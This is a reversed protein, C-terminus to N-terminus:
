SLDKQDEARKKNSLEAIGAFNSDLMSRMLHLFETFNVSDEGAHKRVIRIHKKLEQVNNDGLPIVNKLLAKLESFVIRNRFSGPLGSSTAQEMFLGRFEDVEAASFGTTQITDREKKLKDLEIIDHCIRALALFELLKVPGKDALVESLKARNDKMASKDALMPFKETLLRRLDLPRIANGRAYAQFDERFSQVEEKGFGHQNRVQDRQSERVRIAWPIFNMFSVQDAGPDGMEAEFRVEHYHLNFGMNRLMQFMMDVSVTIDDTFRPM